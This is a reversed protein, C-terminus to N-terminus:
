RSMSYGPLPAWASTASPRTSLRTARDSSAPSPAPWLSSSPDSSEAWPSYGPPRAPATGVHDGLRRHQDPGAGRHAIRSVRVDVPQPRSFNPPRLEQRDSSLGPLLVETMDPRSPGRGRLVVGLGHGAGQIPAGLSPWYPPFSRPRAQEKVQRLLGRLWVAPVDSAGAVHRWAGRMEWLGRIRSRHGISRPVCPFVTQLSVARDVAAALIRQRDEHADGKLSDPYPL